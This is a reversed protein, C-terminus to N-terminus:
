FASLASRCHLVRWNNATLRASNVVKRNLAKYRFPKIISVAGRAASRSSSLRSRVISGLHEFAGPTQLERTARKRDHCSERAKVVGLISARRGDGPMHQFRLLGISKGLCM